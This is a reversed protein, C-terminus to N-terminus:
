FPVTVRKPDTQQFSILAPKYKIKKSLRESFEEFVKYFVWSVAFVVLLTAAFLVLNYAPNIKPKMFNILKVGLPFHLLYISYSIKGFLIFLGSVPKNFLLIFFITSVSFVLTALDYQLFIYMIVGGLAIFNTLKNGNNTYIMYGINGVFFFVLYSSILLYPRAVTQCLFLLIPIIIFYAVLTRNMLVIYFVGFFVYYQCEVLLTWFVPNDAPAHIYFISKIISANDEPFPLHRVSYSAYMICLTFVLAALYPPHLRVLRKYLFQFYNHLQYNGKFLSFPIIFGSIIFFVHVGYLGYREFLKFLSSFPFNDVLPFGFHCFCVLLVAVGRLLVLSDLHNNSAKNNSVGSM